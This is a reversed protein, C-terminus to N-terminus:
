RRRAKGTPKGKTAKVRPRRAKAKSKMKVKPAAKRAKAKAKAKKKAPKAALLEGGGGSMDYFFEERTIKGDSVTYLAVEEMRMKKGAMPGAKPTVVFDYIVTFRDGNPFPGKVEASHIQHNQLWWNNKGRVAERGTQVAPMTDNGAAEVSVVDPSLLTEVAELNRGARCLAVLQDAIEKTTM